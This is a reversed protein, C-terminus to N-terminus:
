EKYPNATIVIDETKFEKTLYTDLKVIQEETIDDTLLYVKLEQLNVKKSQM